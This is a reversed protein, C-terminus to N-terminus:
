PALRPQATPSFKAQPRPAAEVGALRTRAHSFLGPCRLFMMSRRQRWVPTRVVRAVGCPPEPPVTTCTIPRRYQHAVPPLNAERLLERSPSPGTPALSATDARAAVAGVLGSFM